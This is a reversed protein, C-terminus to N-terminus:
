SQSNLHAISRLLPSWSSNLVLVDRAYAAGTYTCPTPMPITVVVGAVSWSNLTTLKFM